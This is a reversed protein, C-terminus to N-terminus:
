AHNLKSVKPCASYSPPGASEAYHAVPLLKEEGATVRSQTHLAPTVESPVIGLMPAVIDLYQSIRPPLAPRATVTDSEHSPLRQRPPQCPQGVPNLRLDPIVIQCILGTM